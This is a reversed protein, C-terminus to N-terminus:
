GPDLAAKPSGFPLQSLVEGALSGTEVQLGGHDAVLELPADPLQDVADGVPLRRGVALHRPLQAVRSQRSLDSAGDAAVRERDDNGAVPHHALFALEGAVGTAELALAEQELELAGLLPRPRLALLQQERLRASRM